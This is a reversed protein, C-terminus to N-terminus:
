RRAAEMAEAYTAYPSDFLLARGAETLRVDAILGVTALEQLCQSAAEDPLALVPSDALTALAEQRSGFDRQCLHLMMAYHNKNPRFERRQSDADRPLAPEGALGLLTSLWDSVTARHDLVTLSWLPLCTIAFLGSHPHKRYYGTHIGGTNWQGNVETAVQVSGAVEFRVETGLLKALKDAGTADIRSPRYIRWAAPLTAAALHFPPILLLVRGAPESWRCLQQKEAADADQFETGFVIGLGFSDPLESAFQAGSAEALLKGRAHTALSGVLWILPQTM